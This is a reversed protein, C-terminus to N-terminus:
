HLADFLDPTAAEAHARHGTPFAFSGTPTTSILWAKYAHEIFRWAAPKWYRRVFPAPAVIQEFDAGTRMWVGVGILDAQWRLSDFDGTSRNVVSRTRVGCLPGSAVVM